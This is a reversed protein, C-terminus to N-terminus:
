CLISEKKMVRFVIPLQILKLSISGPDSSELFGCSKRRAFEFNFRVGVSVLINHQKLQLLHSIQFAYARFSSVQMGRDLVHVFGESEGLIIQGRGSTAAAIM